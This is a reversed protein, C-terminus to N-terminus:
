KESSRPRKQGVLNESSEPSPESSPKHITTQHQITERQDNPFQNSNGSFPIFNTIKSSNDNAPIKEEESEM